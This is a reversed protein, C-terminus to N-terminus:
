LTNNWICHPYRIVTTGFFWLIITLIINQAISTKLLKVNNINEINKLKNIFENFFVNVETSQTETMNNVFMVGAFLGIFFILTILIYEKRNNYVHKIIIKRLKLQKKEKM